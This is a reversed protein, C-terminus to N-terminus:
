ATRAVKETAERTSEQGRQWFYGHFGRSNKGM